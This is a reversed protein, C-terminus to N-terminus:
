IVVADPGLLVRLEALLQTSADVCFDPPLRVTQRPSVAIFVESEGPHEHLLAKLQDVLGPQLGNPSLSLRLPPATTVPEFVDIEMAILKPADDRKDVRGKVCVVVDDALKHGHEQMTKPFVMVETSARLDELTFVAMLDGKKTWKKQLATVVGGFTRMAGDDMEALEDLGADTRRRLSAEAGMLPHDSVYLGLMEKEFALQQRKDFHLDPIKPREDFGAGSDDASEGFLTMVGMDRERRRAVTIDVIREYVTLLGRRPHGMSDFGGAKILSEITRKNLVATDVRECFDYFDVFPGAAEREEIILSVLGEGVNRVASLGFPIADPLPRLTDGAVPSPETRGVLATFNSQSVNVDPVLVPIGMQRCENLYVAAKELSTKVSTLLAALYEVPYHAKLYATQYAVLGYGYAHSKNFAYDAFPEIIDFLTTGLQSGYGQRECGAVFKEREKVILERKKKGCAKRLNDAEALSFGAISQAVRMVSEQYIMLGYTDGLIAELDPHEYAIDKRGNKRDAYDNHMNASMPGPRYLAVLAAVDDFSTPALSRMLARMPGGELQFVGISDGAQLMEFTKADDLPLDDIDLDVGRIEKVMAVTDSLVDLNRLGLFDMKLLGLDEVGHMEYQTVVPADEPDQGSEPKRQIPLYDTLEDKTIVVAAAHIGDQRRLNELGRAVDIVSKADADTEYLARLDGAMKYGDAYKEHEDLCAWLPTDRGMVLPPMLKAIKDGVVYPYGLVRAADRVAARAKITSFTVIQAVHTRGYREAAYRIMEDRYRSDFDMDIDPMSIRSPNLFREFLLDYKIPDLDTIRLCYAVCCGAASGRGPGVRINADRAHRILDWTILFYQSFGMNNITELEYAIREVVKDPLRTGWREKAGEFTLHKLYEAAAKERLADAGAEDLTGLEVGSLDPAFEPPLPFVPLQPKGFDIEVDCREAIWLSNDCAEPVERFLTRMEAASKLYHGDGHFKFRDPDSVLAGTQVCLLADHAKADDRHTYHSDNTALLPADLQRAIEILQPNTRTQEPIGHDQLEVFVNDRGFIDQLRGAKKLAADFDDQLLSQLVHGGLCGTTM